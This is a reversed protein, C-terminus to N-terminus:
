KGPIEAGAPLEAPFVQDRTLVHVRSSQTAPVLGDDGLTAVRLECYWPEHRFVLSHLTGFGRKGGRDVKQLAAWGEAASLKHDGGGLCDELCTRVQRERDTSDRSAKRGDQRGAFHNTVVSYGEVKARVCKKSDTEFVAFPSEDTPVMPLVVRTIFGAPPSTYGLLDQAKAYTTAAVGDAQELLARAAIATPWSDPEPTRTINGSGVHLYAAVGADSFGTVTAVYGPWTVSAVVRGGPLHQVLLITRDIMHKGTFPWDFNRGSLVGGGEAQEGAVVFGSCGMLGFVDLANAVLFDQEDLARELEPVRLDVGSQQLGAFLAAIEARIDDPYDITRQLAARATDLLAKQRGFRASFEAIAVEAIGKALLRGHALGREAPTGWVRLITLGAHQEVRGHVGTAAPAAHQAFCAPLLLTLVFASSRVTM